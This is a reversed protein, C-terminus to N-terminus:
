CTLVQRGKHIFRDQHTKVFTLDVETLEYHSALPLNLHAPLRIYNPTMKAFPKVEGVKPVNEIEPVPINEKKQAAVPKPEEPAINIITAEENTDM